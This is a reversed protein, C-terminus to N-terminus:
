GASRGTTACASGSTLVFLAVAFASTAHSMPPAVYMYFCCRRASGSSCRRRRRCAPRAQALAGVAAQVARASLLLPWCDTSPPDRLRGGRRLAALLRRSRAPAEAPQRDAGGARRGRLVAGVPHACGSRRSTSAGGPKPRASSSPRTFTRRARSARSTSIGTSTRSRSTAISGSRDCTPSTSSERRVRLHPHHRRAALRPLRAPALARRGAQGDASPDLSWQGDVVPYARSRWRRQIRRPERDAGGFEPAVPVDRGLHVRAHRHRAGRRLGAAPPRPRLRRQDRGLGRARWGPAARIPTLLFARQVEERVGGAVLAVIAFLWRDRPSQLLGALPNDPVNHLWPALYQSILLVAAAILLVPVVSLLGLPVETRALRPGLFVDRISEGNAVLLAGILVLLLMTDALSLLFVWTANLTEGEVFPRVGVLALVQILLLQTPVGSCALVQM